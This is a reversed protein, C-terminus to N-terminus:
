PFITSSPSGEERNCGWSSNRQAELGHHHFNAYPIGYLMAGFTGWGGAGMM